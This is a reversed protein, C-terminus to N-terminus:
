QVQNVDSPVPPLPPTAQPMFDNRLTLFIKRALGAFTAIMSIITLGVVVIQVIADSIENLQQSGINLHFIPSLMVVIGVVTSLTGKLTLSVKSPDASSTVLWNWFKHM